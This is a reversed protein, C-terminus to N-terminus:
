GWFYNPYRNELLPLLTQMEQNSNANQEQFFLSRITEKEFFLISVAIKFASKVAEEPLDIGM